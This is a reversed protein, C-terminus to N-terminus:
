TGKPGLALDGRLVVALLQERERRGRDESAEVGKLFDSRAAQSEAIFDRRAAQSEAIFDSRAIKTEGLFAELTARNTESQRDVLGTIWSWFLKAGAAATGVLTVAAGIVVEPTGLEM